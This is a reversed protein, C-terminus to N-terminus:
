ENEKMAHEGMDHSLHTESGDIDALEFDVMIDPGVFGVEEHLLEWVGEYSHAAEAHAHEYEKLLMGM